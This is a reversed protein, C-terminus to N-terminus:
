GPELTPVPRARWPRLSGQTEIRSLAGLRVRHGRWSTTQGLLGAFFVGAAFVDRAPLMWLTGLAAAGGRFTLAAAEALYRAGLLLLASSLLTPTPDAGATLVCALFVLLPSGLLEAAYGAGGLRRRMMAWRRHRGWVGAFSRSIEATDLVDHSLLVRYGARRVLTGILFDEALYDGVSRLGGIAELAERSILISKGVVCPQGAAAIAATGVQLVTNLYLCELRSALTRPWSGRFLHSVLGVRSDHFAAVAPRLFDPRVRVNGDSFLMLRFRARGLGAELRNVKPNPFADRGDVVFVSRVSRHRDAVRRAVALAPDGPHALSFIIEYEPYDLQFFSTLNEELQDDVGCLPKIISVPPLFDRCGCYVQQRRWIGFLFLGLFGAASLFLVFLFFAAVNM